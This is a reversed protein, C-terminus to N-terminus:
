VMNVVWKYASLSHSIILHLKQSQFSVMLHSLRKKTNIVLDRRHLNPLPRDLPPPAKPWLLIALLDDLTARIGNDM